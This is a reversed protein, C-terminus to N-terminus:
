AEIILVKICVYDLNTQLWRERKAKGPNLKKILNKKTFKKKM